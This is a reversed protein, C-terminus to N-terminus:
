LEVAEDIRVAAGRYLKNQGASAVLAGAELGALVGARGERVEGVQVIRPVASLAGEADSEIVWVTSGQLSYAIATEPVTVTPRSAGLAVRLSAFMGPLLGASDAVRARAELSMTDPDVRSDLALLTAEFTKGPFAEVELELRLGPGLMPAFRAPLAFDVELEALNQLTAIRAGPSVYDGVAVRRIGIAGDFPAVIRKNRIRAETEALAARARRLDARSRDYRSQPISKQALLKRDREHLLRALELSAAQRSRSAQEEDDDLAVLEQGARVQEGSDFHIRVVEGSAESALEVGHRARLTGVADLYRARSELRARSAAIAVPPPSFDMAAFAAMRSYQYAGIGGFILALLAAVFLYARVAPERGCFAATYVLGGPPYFFGFGAPPM